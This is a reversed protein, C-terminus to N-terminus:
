RKPKPRKVIRPPQVHPGTLKPLHALAIDAYERRILQRLYDSATLGQRDALDRLIQVEDDSLLMKFQNPREPAMFRM